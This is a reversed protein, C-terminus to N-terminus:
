IGGYGSQQAEGQYSGSSHAPAAGGYPDNIEGYDGVVPVPVPPASGYGGSPPAPASPENYGGSSGSAYGSDPVPYSQEV